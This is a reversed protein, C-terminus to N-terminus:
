LVKPALEWPAFSGNKVMITVLSHDTRYGPQIDVNLIDVSLADSILFYDLRSQKITNFRRWTYIRKTPYVKRYIDVLDFETMVDKLIKRSKPKNNFSLYNRADINPELIVNWDGTTIVQENGVQRIVVSM